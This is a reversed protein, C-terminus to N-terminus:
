KVFYVCSFLCSLLGKFFFFLSPFVAGVVNELCCCCDLAFDGDKTDSTNVDQHLNMSERQRMSHQPQDEAVM